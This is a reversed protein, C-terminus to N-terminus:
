KRVKGKSGPRSTEKGKVHYGKGTRGTSGRGDPLIRGGKESARGCASLTWEVWERKLNENLILLVILPVGHYGCSGGQPGGKESGKKKFLVRVVVQNRAGTQDGLLLYTDSEGWAEEAPTASVRVKGSRTLNRPLAGERGEGQYPTQWTPKDRCIKRKREGSV